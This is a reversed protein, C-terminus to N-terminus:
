TGSRIRLIRDERLSKLYGENRIIKNNIKEYEPHSKLFKLIEKMGFFNNKKYLAKYIKKIFEYDKEEDLTWRKGSLDELSDLNSLKFIDPNNKIYPTVHERESFLKADTWAKRLAEFRFVECDEGDPYTEKMTNSTYDNRDRLHIKLVHDIIKYDIMPCDATIRVIHGAGFLVAAQYYRDLVDNESGRYVRVIKRMCLAAIESDKKDVTTAVTVENVLRSKRVRNIVHELVSKGELELLVKNPLRRAGMRAQIIATVRSM